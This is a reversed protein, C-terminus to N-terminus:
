FSLLYQSSFYIFLERSKKSPFSVFNKLFGDVDSIFKFLGLVRLFTSFCRNVLSATMDSCGVRIQFLYKFIILIIESRLIMLDGKFNCIPLSVVAASLVADSDSMSISCNFRRNSSNCLFFKCFSRRRSWALFSDSDANCFAVTTCSFAAM